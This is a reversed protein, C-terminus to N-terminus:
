PQGTRIVCEHPAAKVTLSFDFFVFSRWIQLVHQNMRLQVSCYIRARDWFAVPRETWMTRTNYFWIWDQASSRKSTESDSIIKCASTWIYCEEYSALFSVVHRKRHSFITRKQMSVTQKPTLWHSDKYLEKSCRESVWFCIIVISIRIISIGTCVNNSGHCTIELLTTNQCTYVWVLM